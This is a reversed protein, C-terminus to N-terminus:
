LNKFELQKDKRYALLVRCGLWNGLVALKHEEEKTLNGRMRCQVLINDHLKMCVLDIPSHSGAARIVFYGLDEFYKQIKREFDAGKSYGTRM